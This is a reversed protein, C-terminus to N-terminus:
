ARVRYLAFDVSALCTRPAQARRFADSQGSPNGSRHGACDAPWQAEFAPYYEEILQYLLAQEPRHREYQPAREGSAIVATM